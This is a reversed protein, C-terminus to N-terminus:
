SSVVVDPFEFLYLSLQALGHLRDPFSGNGSRPSTQQNLDQIYLKHTDYRTNCSM